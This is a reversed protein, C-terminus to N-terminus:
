ELIEWEPHTPLLLESLWNEVQLRLRLMQNDNTNASPFKELARYYDAIAMNWDGWLHYSRGREALIYSELKGFFLATDFNDIAEGYKKLDRLTIGRNIWARVHSPNLDLAKEYDALATQLDGIAAYYNARNNYASPLGPNIRLAKNFDRVAKQGEGSQFYVLGRNNYDIANDPHRQILQNLAAIATLYDGTKASKLACSRLDKDEYAYLQSNSDEYSHEDATFRAADRKGINDQKDGFTSFLHIKM